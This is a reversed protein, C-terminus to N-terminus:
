SFGQVGLRYTGGTPTLTGTSANTARLAVVGASSVRGEFVIGSTVSAPLGVTVIDNIAAGAMAITQDQAIGPALAPWTISTATSLQRTIPTGTGIQVSAAEVLGTFSATTGGLPGGLTGGGIPLYLGSSVSSALHFGIAADFILTFANGAVIEGGTLLQPGTATDKWVTAASFSGFQATVNGTNTAVAIGTFPQYDTYTALTPAGALGTLTLANTGTVTCPVATLAGLAAFNADLQPTTVSTANAFVFPLPM